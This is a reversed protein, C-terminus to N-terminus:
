GGFSWDLIRLTADGLLFHLCSLVIQRALSAFILRRRCGAASRVFANQHLVTNNTGISLEVTFYCGWWIWTSLGGYFLIFLFVRSCTIVVVVVIVVIFNFIRRQEQQERNQKEERRTHHHQIWTYTHTHTRRYIVKISLCRWATFAIAFTHHDMPKGPQIGLWMSYVANLSHKPVTAAVLIAVRKFAKRSTTFIHSFRM